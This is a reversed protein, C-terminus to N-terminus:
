RFSEIGDGVVPQRVRRQDHWRGLENMKLGWGSKKDAKRVKLKLAENEPILGTNWEMAPTMSTLLKRSKFNSFYPSVWYKEM